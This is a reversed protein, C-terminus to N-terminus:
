EFVALKLYERTFPSKTFVPLSPDADTHAPKPFLALPLSEATSADGHRIISRGWLKGM